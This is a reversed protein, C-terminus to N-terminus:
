HRDRHDRDHDRHYEGFAMSRHGSGARDRSYAYGFYGAIAALALHLVNDWGTAGFIGLIQNNGGALSIIGLLFLIGFVVAAAKMYTRAADWATAAGIALLGLVIRLVDHATDTAFLGLLRPTGALSEWVLGLVGLATLFIGFWLTSKRLM